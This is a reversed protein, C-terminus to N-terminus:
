ATIVIGSLTAKTKCYSESIPVQVANIGNHIDFDHVGKNQVIGSYLYYVANSVQAGMWGYLYMRACVCACSIDNIFNVVTSTRIGEQLPDLKTGVQPFSRTDTQM